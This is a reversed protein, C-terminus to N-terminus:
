GMGGVEGKEGLQAHVVGAMGCMLGALLIPRVRNKLTFIPSM